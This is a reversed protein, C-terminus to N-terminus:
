PDQQPERSRQEVQVFLISVFQPTTLQPVSSCRNMARCVGLVGDAKLASMYTFCFFLCAANSHGLIIHHRHRRKAHTDHITNGFINTLLLTIPAGM